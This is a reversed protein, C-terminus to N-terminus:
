PEIGFRKREAALLPDMVAAAALDAKAASLQGTRMRIVGRLFLSSAMEPQQDLVATLDALADDYRKLRFYILARSDLAAVSTEALEISRTCDKLATDLGTDLLGKIWCRSNLLGANGPRTRITEDLLAVAGDHDGVRALLDAKAAIVDIKNEGGADIREQLLALGADRQGHDVDWQALLGLADLSGPDIARAARIDAFRGADDHVVNHVYARQLYLAVSPELAIARDLDALAGKWDYIGILFNARNGYPRAEKSNGAIDAAYAALLPKFRGDRKGAEAIEWRPPLDAPAVVEFLRKKALAVRAREAPVDAAAVEAGTSAMREEALVTGADLAATRTILSGALTTTLKTDGDLAFGTVGGPLYLRTTIAVADPAATAVPIAAWATRARDPEFSLGSVAHDLAMRWRDDRRRWFGSGIATADVTAVAAVPDYALTYGSMAVERGLVAQLLGQVATDKQEKTGQTKAIGVGEANPGRMTVTAHILTPLRLGARQDFDLAVAVTPQAPARAPVALLAAGGPRLPLVWHLPAVDRIGAYRSGTTTGELWLSETGVTAHVLVHDFAGASPLRGPLFDGMTSHALVPEAEIGLQRLVALLLLTKAKCDGYRLAWTQAPSQPVLNGNEIGNYLYHVKEQVLQLAAAARQLPAKQAAAITAVEAALPSGPAITGETAYLPAVTASVSRWDAFSSAEILPLKRFRLPADAPLDAPKPLPGALLVEHEGAVTTEIPKGGEAYSRWVVGGSAPWVIRAREFGPNSEGVPLMAAAHMGGKLAPEKDTVSATVRLVDGVQLGEVAMTATLQGDIALKDLQEERRIVEFRKGQALLDIHQSGRIIEVRHVILDGHAPQWPLRITGAQAVVEPSALRTALDTYAWSMGDALRAQQDYTLLLPSDPKLTAGDIAPAPKVWVPVPQYVPKDSADAQSAM